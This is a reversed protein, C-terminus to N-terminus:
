KFKVKSRLSALMRQQEEAKKKDALMRIWPAFKKQLKADLQEIELSHEDQSYNKAFYVSSNYFSFFEGIFNEFLGKQVLFEYVNDAVHIHDISRNAKAFTKNMITSNHRYYVYLAEPRCYIKKAVAIYKWTFSADEYLRGEIFNINYMDILTKKFIKNCVSVDVKNLINHSDDIVGNFKVKYYADDSQKMHFDSDYIVKISSLALDCDNDVLSHYLKDCADPMFEDDSDCFMLYKGVAAQIGCNRAWGLGGHPVDLIRIRKDRKTYEKLVSMTADTSADNVCLIEINEYTQRILSELCRPLFEVQNYCPVIITIMDM